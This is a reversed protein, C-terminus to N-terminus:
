ILYLTHTHTILDCVLLFCFFSVVCFPINHLIFFLNQFLSMENFAINAELQTSFCLYAYFTNLPHMATIFMTHATYANHLTPLSKNPIEQMIKIVRIGTSYHNVIGSKMYSKTLTHTCAHTHKQFHLEKKKNNGIKHKMRTRNVM